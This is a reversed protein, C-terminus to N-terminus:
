VAPRPEKVKPTPTPLSHSVLSHDNSPQPHKESVPLATKNRFLQMQKKVEEFARDFGLKPFDVHILLSTLIGLWGDAKYNPTMVLPVISCRRKMAYSAEMQCFPSQKYADSMCLFVFESNEIADAMADFTAGHMLQSDIWVHYQSKELASCIQHCLDKDQHSYSIMIDYQKKPASSPPPAAPSGAEEKVVVVPKEAEKELKWILATAVRQLDPETSATLMRISTMFEANDRLSALFDKNFTLALLIELAPLKARIPNFHDELACRLLLTYYEQKILEERIQDHQM